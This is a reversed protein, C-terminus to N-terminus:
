VINGFFHPKLRITVSLHDSDLGPFFNHYIGFLRYSHVLFNRIVVFEGNLVVFDRTKTPRDRTATSEILCYLRVIIYKSHHFSKISEYTHINKSYLHVITTQRDTVTKLKYTRNKKGFHIYINYYPNYM